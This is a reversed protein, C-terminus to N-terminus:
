TTPSPPSGRLAHFGSGNGYAIILRPPQAVVTSTTSTATAGPSVVPSSLPPAFTKLVKQVFKDESKRRDRWNHWRAVRHQPKHYHAALEQQVKLRKQLYVEFKARSTTRSNHSSLEHELEVIRESKEKNLRQQRTCAGSEVRRQAFTYRLWVGEKKPEGNDPAHQNTVYLLNRKGPDIGVVQLPNANVFQRLAVHEAESLDGDPAIHPPLAAARRSRGTTPVKPMKVAAGCDAVAAAAAAAAAAAHAINISVSVGDTTIFHGFRKFENPTRVAKKVNWALGKTNM